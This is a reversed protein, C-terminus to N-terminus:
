YAVKEYVAKMDIDLWKQEAFDYVKKTLNLELKDNGIHQLSHLVGYQSQHEPNGDILTITNDSNIEYSYNIFAKLYEMLYPTDNSIYGIYQHPFNFAILQANNSHYVLPRVEALKDPSEFDYFSIPESDLTVHPNSIEAFIDSSKIGDNNLDVMTTSQIAITKYIGTIDITTNESDKSCSVLILMISITLLYKM